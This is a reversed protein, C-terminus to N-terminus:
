KTQLSEKEILLEIRKNAIELQITTNRKDDILVCQEYSIKKIRNFLSDAKRQLEGLTHM